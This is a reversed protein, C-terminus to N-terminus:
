LSEKEFFKKSIDEISILLKQEDQTFDKIGVKPIRIFGKNKVSPDEIIVQMIQDLIGIDTTCRSLQKKLKQYEKEEDIDCDPIGSNSKSECIKRALDTQKWGIEDLVSKIEKQLVQIENTCKNMM